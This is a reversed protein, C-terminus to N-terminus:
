KQCLMVVSRNVSCSKQLWFPMKAGNPAMKCFTKKPFSLFFADFGYPKSAKQHLYAPDFRQGRSHWELARGASSYGWTALFGQNQQIESSNLKKVKSETAPSCVRNSASGASSYGWATKNKMTGNPESCTIIYCLSDFSDISKQLFKQKKLFNKTLHSFRETQM